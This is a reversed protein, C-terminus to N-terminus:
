IPNPPAQAPPPVKSEPAAVNYQERYIGAFATLLGLVMPGIFVGLVGYVRLGGLIGLFLLFTPIKARGSILVTKLINDVFSVLVGWGLMFWPQWTGGEAFLWLTAPVWVGAAGIFPIFASLFTVIGLLVSFRVGAIAFGIGAVLGQAAATLITGRVVAAFTQDLRRVVLEKHVGEMPLLDVVSRIMVAGDRLFFFVGLVIVVVDLIVGVVNSLVLKALDAAAGGIADIARAIMDRLDVGWKDAFADAGTVLDMLAKPLIRELRPEGSRQIEAAWAKAQPMMAQSEGVLLWGVVLFPLVVVLLVLVTSIAAALSPRKTWALMRRHIPQFLVVLTASGALASLFPSLLVVVQYLLYAFAAFFFLRFLLRRGTGGLPWAPDM